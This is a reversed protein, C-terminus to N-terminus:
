GIRIGTDTCSNTSPKPQPSLVRGRRGFTSVSESEELQGSWARGYLATVASSISRPMRKLDGVHPIQIHVNTM